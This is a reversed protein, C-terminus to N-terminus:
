IVRFRFNFIRGISKATKPDFLSIIKEMDEHKRSFSEGRFVINLLPDYVSCHFGLQEYSDQSNTVKLRGKVKKTLKTVLPILDM